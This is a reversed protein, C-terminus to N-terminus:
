VLSLCIFADPQGFTQGAGVLLNDGSVLHFTSFSNNWFPLISHSSKPFAEELNALFKIFIVKYQDFSPIKFMRLKSSSLYFYAILEFCERCFWLAGQLHGLVTGTWGTQPVCRGCHFAIVVLYMFFPFACFLFFIVM